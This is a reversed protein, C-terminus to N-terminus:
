DQKEAIAPAWTESAVARIEQSRSEKRLLFLAPIGQENARKLGEEEGLVFLATAWADARACVPDLVTISALRESPTPGGPEIRETPFGTRPDVIHSYRVGAVDRYNQYDGSTAMGLDQLPIALQLGQFDGPLGILPKQIGMKWPRGPEKVGRCRVEGGVEVLYNVLGREELLAAVRDAAYGKAIASLNITLAPDSKKLAPPDLRVELKEYGIRDKLEASRRELEEASVPGRSAGFGWLEVIPQVTIDFAGGTTGSIERALHVVEATAPSVEFWDTSEFANFRSVESAERFTSMAADIEDLCAKIDSALPPWADIDNKKPFDAVKVSYFTGMTQGTAEKFTLEVPKQFYFYWVAFGALGLILIYRVIDWSAGREDALGDNQETNQEARENKAM